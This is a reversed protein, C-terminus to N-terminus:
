RQKTGKRMPIVTAGSVAERVRLVFIRRMPIYILAIFVPIKLILIVNPHSVTHHRRPVQVVSIKWRPISPRIVTHLANALLAQVARRVIPKIEAPFVAPFVKACSTEISVVIRRVYMELMRLIVVTRVSCIRVNPRTMMTMTAARTEATQVPIVRTEERTEERIAGRVEERQVVGQAVLIGLM